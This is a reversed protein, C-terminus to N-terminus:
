LPKSDPEYKQVLHGIFEAYRDALAPSEILLINEANRTASHSFNYSGTIVTDDVVLIKAHMFDHPTDPSYPTSNKGVLGVRDVIERILPIKWHNQPVTEWQFLVTEQQTRDYIGSVEVKGADLVADLSKLLASANLLMSCIVVRKRAVGVIDAVKEDIEEGRGPSFLVQTEAGDGGYRLMVPETGFDGSDEFDGDDWLEAFDKTYWAAIRQSQITLINNEQLTWSDNTFNTSGTWVAADPEAADRVIYKHHMLKDGGIRQWAYGLSQVFEGTGSEAPDMGRDLEPQEPKDADYAIRIRVGRDACEKLASALIARLDDSLRMDYVAIDLSTRTQSIFKAADRAIDSARQEGESLFTVDLTDTM